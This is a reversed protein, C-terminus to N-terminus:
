ENEAVGNEKRYIYKLSPMIGERPANRANGGWNLESMLRPIKAADVAGDSIHYSYPQDLLELFPQIEKIVKNKKSSVLSDLQNYSEIFKGLADAMIKNAETLEADNAFQDSVISRLEGKLEETNVVEILESLALEHYQIVEGQKKLGDSLEHKKTLLEVTTKQKLTVLVDKYETELEEMAQKQQDLQTRAKTLEAIHPELTSTITKPKTM